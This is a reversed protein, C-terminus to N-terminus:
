KFKIYICENSDRVLKATHVGSIIYISNINQRYDISIQIANDDEYLFSIHTVDYFATLLGKYKLIVIKDDLNISRGICKEKLSYKLLTEKKM